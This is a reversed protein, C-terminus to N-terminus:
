EQVCPSSRTEQSSESRYIRYAALAVWAALTWYLMTKFSM